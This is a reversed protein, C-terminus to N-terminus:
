FMSYILMGVMFFATDVLVDIMGRATGIKTMGIIIQWIEWVTHINFGTTYFEYDPFYQVLIWATLVGSLLHVFSWNTVYFVSTSNGIYYYELFKRIRPGLFVDGSRYVLSDKAFPQM